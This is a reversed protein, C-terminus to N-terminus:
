NIYKPVRRLIPKLIQEIPYVPKWEGTNYENEIQKIRSKLIKIALDPKSIIQKIQYKKYIVSNIAEFWPKKKMEKEIEERTIGGKNNRTLIKNYTKLILDLGFNDLEFDQKWIICNEQKINNNELHKKLLGEADKDVIIYVDNEVLNARMIYGDLNKQNLNGSGEAEYLHIGSSEPDFVDIAKFIERIVKDETKGEYIISCIIPRKTIFDSLIRQITKQSKLDYPEGYKMEKWGTLWPNSDYPSLMKTGDLDQIFMSMLQLADFYDQAVLADGTFKRRKNRNIIEPLPNLQNIPDLNNFEFALHNYMEKLKQLTFGTRKLIKKTIKKQKKWKKWKNFLKKDNPDLYFKNTINPYYREELLMLLGIFPNFENATKEKMIKIVKRYLQKEQEFFRKENFRKQIFFRAPTKIKEIRVLNNVFFLQWPHYLLKIKFKKKNYTKWSKYDGSKPFEIQQNDYADKLERPTVPVFSGYRFGHSEHTPIKIRLCPRLLGTKDLYELYQEHVIVGRKKLEDLFDKHTLLHFQSFQSELVLKMFEHIEPV